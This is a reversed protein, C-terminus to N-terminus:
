EHLLWQSLASVLSELHENVDLDELNEVSRIHTDGIILDGMQKVFRPILVCNNICWPILKKDSDLSGAAGGDIAARLADRIEDRSRWAFRSEGTDLREIESMRVGELESVYLHGVKADAPDVCQKWAEWLNKEDFGGLTIVSSESNEACLADLCAWTMAPTLLRAPRREKIERVITDSKDSRPWIKAIKLIDDSRSRRNLLLQELTKSRPTRMAEEITTYRKRVVADFDGDVLEFWTRFKNTFDNMAHDDGFDDIYLHVSCGARQMAGAIFCQSAHIPTPYRLRVPWFLQTGPADPVFQYRAWSVRFRDELHRILESPSQFASSSEVLCNVTANREVTAGHASTDDHKLFLAKIDSKGDPGIKGPVSAPIWGPKGESSYTRQWLVAREAELDIRIWSYTKPENNESYSAGGEVRLHGRSDVFWEYHGHGQFHLDYVCELRNRNQVDEPEALWSVPHHTAVIKFDAAAIKQHIYDFQYKGIWLKGRENNDCSAWCTNLGAVGITKSGCRIFGAPVFFKPDWDLRNPIKQVADYWQRQRAMIQPWTLDVDKQITDVFGGDYGARFRVFQRDIRHRNVDHNGPVILLPFEKSFEVGAAEAVSDIFRRANALQRSIRCEPNDVGKVCAKSDCQHRCGDILDGSFVILNPKLSQERHMREIDALLTKCVVSQDVDDDAERIHTDSM